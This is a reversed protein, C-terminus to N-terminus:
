HALASQLATRMRVLAEGQPYRTFVSPSVLNAQAAPGAARAFDVVVWGLRSASRQLLERRERALDALHADVPMPPLCIILRPMKGLRECRTRIAGLLREEEASWASGYLVQNGPCWVLTRPLSDATTSAAFVQALAVLVAHQPYREDHVARQEADLGTWASQGLALMPDGVLLARGSPRSEVGDLFTWMREERTGRRHDVLVVPVGDQDVPFGNELSVMPWANRAASVRVRLPYRAGDLEAIAVQDTLTLPLPLLGSISEADKPLTIPQATQDKWGITGSIGGKRVPLAFAINRTEDQYAIAPWHTFHPDPWIRIGPASSPSPPV